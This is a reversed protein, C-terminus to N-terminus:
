RVREAIVTATVNGAYKRAVYLRKGTKPFPVPFGQDAPVKHRDTTVDTGDGGKDKLAWYSEGDASLVVKRERDASTEIVLEVWKLAPCPVDTTDNDALPVAAM